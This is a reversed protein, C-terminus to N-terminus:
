TLLVGAQEKARGKELAGVAVSPSFFVLDGWECVGWVSGWVCMRWICVGYVCGICVCGGVCGEYVCVRM